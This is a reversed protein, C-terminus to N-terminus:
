GSNEDEEIYDLVREADDKPPGPHMSHLSDWEGIM